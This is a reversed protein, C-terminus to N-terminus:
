YESLELKCSPSSYSDMHQINDTHTYLSGPQQNHVNEWVQGYQQMFQSCNTKKKKKEKEIKKKEEWVTVIM